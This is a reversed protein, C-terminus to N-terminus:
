NIMQKKMFHPYYSNTVIIPNTVTFRNQITKM